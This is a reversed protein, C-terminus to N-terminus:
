AQLINDFHSRDYNALSVGDASGYPRYFTNLIEDKDNLHIPLDRAYNLLAWNNDWTNFGAKFASMNGNDYGNISLLVDNPVWTNNIKVVSRTYFEHPQIEAGFRGNGFSIGFAETAKLGCARCLAVFVSSANLNDGRLLLRGDNARINRIGEYNAGCASNINRVVYSFAARAIAEDSKNFKVIKNAIAQIEGDTRIYRNSENFIPEEISDKAFSVEVEYNVRAHRLGRKTWNVEVLPVNDKKLLSHSNYNGSVELNKPHQIKSQLPVPVLVSVKDAVNFRINNLIAVKFKRSKAESSPAKVTAFLGSGFAVSATALSGKLFSRRNIKEM